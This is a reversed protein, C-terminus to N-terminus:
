FSGGLSFEFRGPQEGERPDLVWGYILQIPAFASLWRIGLGASQRMNALDIAGGYVNGTDYFVFGNVGQRPLLSLIIEANIQIMTNGGAEVLTTTPNGDEDFGSIDKM